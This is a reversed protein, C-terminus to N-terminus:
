LLGALYNYGQELLGVPKRHRSRAEIDQYHLAKQRAALQQPTPEQIGLIQDRIATPLDKGAHAMQDIMQYPEILNSAAHEAEQSLV